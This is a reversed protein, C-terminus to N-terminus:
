PLLSSPAARRLSDARANFQALLETHERAEAGNVHVLGRAFPPQEGPEDQWRSWVYGVVALHRATRALSARGRQLMREVATLKVTRPGARGALPSGPRFPGAQGAGASIAPPPIRWFVEDSWCVNGAFVPFGPPAGPAPLESWDPLGVDVAPYVCEALVQLGVAGSFRCGLILHNPDAARVAAATTTFYRRAFERTWRADDRLYGRTALGTETRTHERVVEKNALPVGWARAVTALRRGHLALVFEWAAHYAAFNPELSLCIQLLSPRGASTLHGWGPADDTVWGLLERAGALPACVALAQASAALPWDAAFVDPLRVGPAVIAAGARCFNVAAMFAFGDDHGTGDGGVGVANFGWQRLRAASDVPLAGEGQGAAVRVGHVARGFFAAGAPDILWWRGAADQGVRFFGAAGRVTGPRFEGADAM